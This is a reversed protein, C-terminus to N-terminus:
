APEADVEEFIQQLNTLSEERILHQMTNRDRGLLVVRKMLQIHEAEAGPPTLILFFVHSREGDIAGYDIGSRSRGFVACIRSVYHCAKMHPVALGRGIGTSAERERAVIARAISDQASADLGVDAALTQVLEAIVRDRTTAKLDNIRLSSGILGCLSVTRPTM